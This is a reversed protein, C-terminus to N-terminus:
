HMRPLENPDPHDAPDALMYGSIPHQKIFERRTPIDLREFDQLWMSTDPYLKGTDRNQWPITFLNYPDIITPSTPKRSRPETPALLPKPPLIVTEIQQTPRLKGDAIDEIVQEIWGSTSLEARTAQEKAYDWAGHDISLSKVVKM